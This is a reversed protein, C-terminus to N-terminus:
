QSATAKEPPSTNAGNLTVIGNFEDKISVDDIYWHGRAHTEHQLNGWFSIHTGTGGSIPPLTLNLVELTPEGQIPEAGSEGFWLRYAGDDNYVNGGPDAVLDQTSAQYQEEVYYWKSREFELGALNQPSTTPTIIAQGNYRTFGSVQPETVGKGRHGFTPIEGQNPGGRDPRFYHLKQRVNPSTTEQKLYARRFISTGPDQDTPEVYTFWQIISNCDARRVIDNVGKKIGITGDLGCRRAIAINDGKNITKEGNMGERDLKLNLRDKTANADIVDTIKWRSFGNSRNYVFRGVKAKSGDDEKTTSLYDAVSLNTGREEIFYNVGDPGAHAFDVKDEARWTTGCTNCIGNKGEYSIRLSYPASHATDTTLFFHNTPGYLDMFDPALSWAPEGDVLSGSNTFYKPPTGGNDFDNIYFDVAQVNSSPFVVLTVLAILARPTHKNM